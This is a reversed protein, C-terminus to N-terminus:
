IVNLHSPASAAQERIPHPGACLLLKGSEGQVRFFAKLMWLLFSAVKLWDSNIQKMIGYVRQNKGNDM